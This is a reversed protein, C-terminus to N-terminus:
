PEWYERLVIRGAAADSALLARLYYRHEYGCIAVVRGGPHRLAERLINARMAENRRRWFAAAWRWLASFPTLQPTLDIVRQLGAYAYEQKRSIVSDAAASNIVRPTEAGIADRLGDLDDLEKLLGQAEPGLRHQAELDNLAANLQRQRAFYDQTQYELNRGEIDYPRLAVPTTVLLRSVAAEELSQQAFEPRLQLEADLLLLTPRARALIAVLTDVSFQATGTHPSGVVVVEPAAPPAQACVRGVCCLAAWVSGALVAAALPPAHHDSM